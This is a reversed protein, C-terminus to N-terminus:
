SSAADLKSMVSQSSSGVTIPTALANLSLPTVAAALGNALAGKTTSSATQWVRVWDVNMTAPFPTSSDPSGNWGGLWVDLILYMPYSCIAAQSGSVSFVQKGDLYWTIQNPQWNVGYTHYGQSLDVGANNDQSLQNDPNGWHYTTSDVNPINGQGEYADIEGASDDPSYKELPLLWFAPWIGQGAPVQMRVEAFGYLFSFPQASNETDILAPTNADTASLHLSGGSVTAPGTYTQNWITNGWSSDLSTGNFEDDYIM